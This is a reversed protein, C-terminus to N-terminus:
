RAPDHLERLLSEVKSTIARNAADYGDSFAPLGDWRIHLLHQMIITSENSRLHGRWPTLRLLPM